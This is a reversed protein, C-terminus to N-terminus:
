SAGNRSNERASEVKVNLPLLLSNKIYISAFSIIEWISFSFFWKFCLIHISEISSEHTSCSHYTQQKLARVTAKPSPIHVMSSIVSDHFVVNATFAYLSFMTLLKEMETQFPVSLHRGNGTMSKHESGEGGVYIFCVESLNIMIKIDRRKIFVNFCSKLGWGLFEAHWFNIRKLIKKSIRM